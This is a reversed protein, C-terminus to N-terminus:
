RYSRILYAVQELRQRGDMSLLDSALASDVAERIRQRHQPNYALHPKAALLAWLTHACLDRYPAGPLGTVLSDLLREGGWSEVGVEIMESDASWVEPIEGVWYAWYTLNAAHGDDDALGQRIFRSLADPRGALSEAVAHSRQVPWEPSWRRLDPLARQEAATVERIWHRSPEHDALLYTAQRRLMAGHEGAPRQDVALRLQNALHDLDTPALLQRRAAGNLQRPPRGSLPWALLETTVRDPVAVALPHWGPEDRAIDRLVLDAQVARDLLTLLQRDAGLRHLAQRHRHLDAVRASTLARRGSEWAQVLDESVALAEALDTQTVGLGARIARLVAGSVIGSDRGQGLTPTAGRPTAPM